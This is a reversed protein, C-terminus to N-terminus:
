WAVIIKRMTLIQLHTHQQCLPFPGVMREEWERVLSFLETEALSITGKFCFDVKCMWHSRLNFNGFSHREFSPLERFSPTLFATKAYWMKSFNGSRKSMTMSFALIRMSWTPFGESRCFFTLEWQTNKHDTEKQSWSILM